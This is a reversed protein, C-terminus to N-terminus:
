LDGEDKGALVFLKVVIDEGAKELLFVDDDTVEMENGFTDLGFIGYLHSLLGLEKAYGRYDNYGCREVVLATFFNTEGSLSSNESKSYSDVRWRM